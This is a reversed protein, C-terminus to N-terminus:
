FDWTCWERRPPVEPMVGDAFRGQAMFTRWSDVVEPKEYVSQDRAETDPNYVPPGDPFWVKALSGDPQRVMPVPTKKENGLGPPLQYTVARGKFM